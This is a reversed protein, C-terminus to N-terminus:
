ECEKSPIKNNIHDVIKSRSGYHVVPYRLPVNIIYSIMQVLHLTFGLAASLDLEQYGDFNESNPLIVDCIKYKGDPSQFCFFFLVCIYDLFIFYIFTLM